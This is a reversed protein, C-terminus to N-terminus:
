RSVVVLAPRILRESITYGAQMVQLITEAEKDSEIHSIAEHFNHDFKEGLPFIRKIQHKELTKMLERKTMMVADVFSKTKPCEDMKEQPLNDCSLFFNEAVLILDSAFNSVAYKRAKDIEEVSRRRVNDLEALTRLLRDNSQALKEESQTLKQQLIDNESLNEENQAENQANEALNEDNKPNKGMKEQWSPKNKNEEQM